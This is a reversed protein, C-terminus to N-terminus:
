VNRSLATQFAQIASYLAAAQASSMGSDIVYGGVRSGSALYAATVGNNNLCMITIPVQATAPTISTSSTGVSAGNKFLEADTPGRRVIHWFGAVLGGTTVPASSAVAGGWTGRVSGAAAGNIADRNGMLRFSQTAGTNDAGMLCRGTTDSAQTTRLYCSMGGVLESPTYGGSIRKDTGNTQPGLAETYDASVGNTFTDAANGLTNVLPILSANFDGCFLNCRQILSWISASKCSTVFARVATETGASVTGSAASVRTLWSDVETTSVASSGAIAGLIAPRM